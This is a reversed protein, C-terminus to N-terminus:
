HCQQQRGWDAEALVLLAEQAAMVDEKVGSLMWQCPVSSPSLTLDLGENM